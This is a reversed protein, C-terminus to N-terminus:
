ASPTGGRAAAQASSAPADCATRGPRTGDRLACTTENGRGDDADDDDDDDNTNPKADRIFENFPDSADEDAAGAIRSRRTLTLSGPCLASMHVLDEETVVAPCAPSDGTANPIMSRVLRWTPRVRQSQILSAMTAVLQYGVALRELAPPLGQAPEREPERTRKATGRTKRPRKKPAEEEPAEAIKADDPEDDDDDDNVSSKAVAAEAALERRIEDAVDRGRRDEPEKRARSAPDDAAHRHAAQAQSSAGGGAGAPAALPDADM